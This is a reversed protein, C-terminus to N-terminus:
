NQLIRLIQRNNAIALSNWMSNKHNFQPHYLLYQHLSDFQPGPAYGSIKLSHHKSNKYPRCFKPPIKLNKPWFLRLFNFVIEKSSSTKAGLDGWLYAGTTSWFVNELLILNVKICDLNVYQLVLCLCLPLSPLHSSSEHFRVLFCSM